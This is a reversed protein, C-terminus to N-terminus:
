RESRVTKILQTVRHGIIDRILNFHIKDMEKPDPIDWDERQKARIAPCTEGCGMTVAWDYEIQPIDSLTKSTHVTLDYGVAEMAAIAKKNIEGTPRSGSSYAEIVDNGLMKAFAEAMQSRCSNEVCVFVVTKKHNM